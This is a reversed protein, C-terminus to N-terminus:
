RSAAPARSGTQQEGFTPRVFYVGVICEKPPHFDNHLHIASGDSGIFTARWAHLGAESDNLVYVARGHQVTFIHLLAQFNSFCTPFDSEEGDSLRIRGLYGAQDFDYIARVQRGNLRGARAKELSHGNERVGAGLVAEVDARAMGLKVDGFGEVPSPKQAAGAGGAVVVLSAACFLRCLTGLM